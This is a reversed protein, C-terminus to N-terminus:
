IGEHTFSFFGQRKNCVRCCVRDIIEDMWKTHDTWNSGILLGKLRIIFYLQYPYVIVSYSKITKRRTVHPCAQTVQPPYLEYLLRCSCSHYHVFTSFIVVILIRCFKWYLLLKIPRDHYYLLRSNRGCLIPHQRCCNRVVAEWVTCLSRNKSISSILTQFFIISCGTIYM